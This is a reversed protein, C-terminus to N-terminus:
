AENLIKVADKLLGAAEDLHAQAQAFQGSDLLRGGENLSNTAQNMTARARARLAELEITASDGRM